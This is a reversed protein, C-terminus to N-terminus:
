TSLKLEESSGLGWIFPVPDSTVSSVWSDCKTVLLTPVWYWLKARSCMDQAVARYKDMAGLASLM